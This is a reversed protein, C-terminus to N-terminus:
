TIKIVNVSHPALMITDGFPTWEDLDKADIEYAGWNENGVTQSPTLTIKM